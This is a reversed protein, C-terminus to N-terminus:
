SLRYYFKDGYYKRLRDRRNILCGPCSTKKVRESFANFTAEIVANDIEVTWEFGTEMFFTLNEVPCNCGTEKGIAEILSKPVNEHVAMYLKDTKYQDKFGKSLDLTEGNVKEIFKAKSNAKITPYLERLEKLTMKSLDKM